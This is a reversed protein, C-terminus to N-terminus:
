LTENEDGKFLDNWVAYVTPKKRKLPKDLDASIVRVKGNFKGKDTTLGEYRGKMVPNSKRMHTASASWCNDCAPSVYTCGEILSWAEGWWLGKAVREPDIMELTKSM